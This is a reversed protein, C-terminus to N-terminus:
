RAVFSIVRRKVKAPLLRIQVLFWSNCAFCHDTTRRLYLLRQGGRFVITRRAGFVGTLKRDPDAGADLLKSFADYNHDFFAWHLLTVRGHDSLMSIQVDFGPMVGFDEWRVGARADVSNDATITSATRPEITQSNCIGFRLVSLVSAVYWILKM